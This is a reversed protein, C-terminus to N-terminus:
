NSTEPTPGSNINILSDSKKGVVVSLNLTVELGLMTSIESQSERRVWDIVSSSPGIVISKQAEREVRLQQDIRLQNGRQTWGLNYQQVIYPLEKYLRQYLKERIIEQVRQLPTSDTVTNADWEWERPIATSYLYDEIDDVGDDDTVSIYFVESICPCVTVIDTALVLLKKKPVVLDVKNLALCMKVNPHSVSFEQCVTFLQQELDSIRKAADVLIIIVDVASSVSWADTSLERQYLKAQSNLIIGPTDYIVLQTNGQTTVGLTTHRTTNKKNSVASVKNRILRNILASKGANPTGIISLHLSRPGAPQPVDWLLTNVDPGSISPPAQSLRHVSSSSPPQSPSVGTNSSSTERDVQEENSVPTSETQPRYMYGRPGQLAEKISEHQLRQQQQQERKQRVKKMRMLEAKKMKSHFEGDVATLSPDNLSSELESLDVELDVDDGEYEAEEEQQQEEEAVQHTQASAATTTATTGRNIAQNMKIIMTRKFKDLAKNVHAAKAARRRPPNSSFFRSCAPCVSSLFSSSSSIPSWPLSRM